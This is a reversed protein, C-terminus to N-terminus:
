FDVTRLTVNTCERLGPGTEAALKYRRGASVEAEISHRTVSETEAIRCDVLLRHSGPLVDVANQGVTLPRDDVERLIVTLPAGATIRLDGSIRAVEDKGRPPGDYVQATMCGSCVIAVAIAAVVRASM